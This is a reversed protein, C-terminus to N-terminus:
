TAKKPRESNPYRFLFCIIVINVVSWFIAVRLIVSILRGGSENALLANRAIECLVDKSDIHSLDDIKQFLSTSQSAGNNPAKITFSALIWAGFGFANFILITWLLAPRKM